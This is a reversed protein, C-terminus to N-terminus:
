KQHGGKWAHLALALAIVGYAVFVRFYEGIQPDGMLTKGALPSTVFLTHFLLTGLLAQWVTARSVSAGGVLLSAVGFMGIQEHSSYTNLTGMNQLYVLHGWAALVTSVVVAILRTRDVPIGAVEAIHMDQGVARMDQGLKTAMLWGIGLCLGTILLFTSIPIKVPSGAGASEPGTSPVAGTAPQTKDASGVTWAMGQGSKWTVSLIDDLAYNVPALNVTNRLGYGEPLLLAPNHFPILTGVLFLFLLQYLGNAFFGAILGTVMERGKARNFLLGVLWGFAIAIPVVLLAAALFGSLGAMNWHVVTIIAMQAAMAGLVIGFNLGLGALVPVILSLTTFSNRALRTAVEGALFAPGQGSMVCLTLCLAVFTIPVAQKRALAMWDFNRHEAPANM